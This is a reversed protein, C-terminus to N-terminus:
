LFADPIFKFINLVRQKKMCYYNLLLAIKEFELSVQDYLKGVLKTHLAQSEDYIICNRQQAMLICITIALDNVSVAERL